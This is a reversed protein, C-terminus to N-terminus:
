ATIMAAAEAMVVALVVAAVLARGEAIVLVAVVV